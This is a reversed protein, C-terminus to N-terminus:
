ETVKPPLAGVRAALSLARGIWSAVTKAAIEAVEVMKEAGPDAPHSRAGLKAQEDALKNGWPDVARTRGAKVDAESAHGKTKSM